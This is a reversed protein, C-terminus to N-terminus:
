DCLVGLPSATGLPFYCIRPHKRLLDCLDQPMRLSPQTAALGYFNAAAFTLAGFAAALFGSKYSRADLLRLQEANLKM